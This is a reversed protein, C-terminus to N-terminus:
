GTGERQCCQSRIDQAHQVHIGDLLPAECLRVNM